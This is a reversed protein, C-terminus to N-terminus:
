DFSLNVQRSTNLEIKAGGSGIKGDLNKSDVKGSFNKLGSTEIRQAKAKLDYNKEAPVSLNINGNSASLIVYDSVSVMTVTMGGNSTKANVSGSVHDLSMRGNSTEINLEGNVQNATVSSNTSRANVSGSVHDLKMSGNSTEIKLEGDVQNATVSSNTSTASINGSLNSLSVAGNTTRLIIKGSCYKVTIGGNGTKVDIDNNSNTLTISGNSTNGAIKGVVNDVTVSGNSTVFNQSGSLDSIRIYANSTQLNCNVQKPVSIKFSINLKQQGKNKPRAIAYLKEAEVKIDITYDEKLMQKIEEDSWNNRRNNRWGFISGSDGSNTPSVYMEVMVESTADGSVTISGNTTIVEAWKVLSTFTHTTFPSNVQSFLNTSLLVSIALLFLKKM